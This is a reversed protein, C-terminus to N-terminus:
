LEADRKQKLKRWSYRESKCAKEIFKYLKENIVLFYFGTDPAKRGMQRAFRTKQPVYTWPTCVDLVGEVCARHILTMSLKTVEHLQMKTIINYKFIDFIREPENGLKMLSLMLDDKPM